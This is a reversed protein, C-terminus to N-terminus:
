QVRPRPAPPAPPAGAAPPLVIVVDGPRVYGLEERALRELTAPDHNLREIRYRLAAIRQEAAAAQAALARERARAAVLERGGRLAGTALLLLAFVVLAGLLPRLPRPRPTEAASV